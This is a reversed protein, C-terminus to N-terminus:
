SVGCDIVTKEVVHEHWREHIHLSEDNVFFKDHLFYRHQFLPGNERMVNKRTGHWITYTLPSSFRVHSHFKSRSSSRSRMCMLVKSATHSSMFDNARKCFSDCLVEGFFFSSVLYQFYEQSFADFDDGDDDIYLGYRIFMSLLVTLLIYKALSLLVDYSVFFSQLLVYTKINHLDGQSVIASVFQPQREFRPLTEVLLSTINVLHTLTHVIFSAVCTRRSEEDTRM